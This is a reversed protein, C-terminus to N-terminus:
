LPAPCTGFFDGGPLCSLEATVQVSSVGVGADPTPGADTSAPTSIADVVDAPSLRHRVDNTGTAIKVMTGRELAAADLADGEPLKVAVIHDFSPAADIIHVLFPEAPTGVAVYELAPNRPTTQLLAGQYIVRKVEFQVGNHIPRGGSEFNGLFITGKITRLTGAALDYLSFRDPRVTFNKTAFTQSAEPVGGVIGVEVIVQINHPSSYLPIHSLYLKGSKSGFLVMGHVSVHSGPQGVAVNEPAETAVKSDDQPATVCAMSLTAILALPFRISSPIM